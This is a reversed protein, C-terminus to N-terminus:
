WRSEFYQAISPLEDPLSNNHNNIYDRLNQLSESHNIAHILNGSQFSLQIITEFNLYRPHYLCPLNSNKIFNNGIFLDGTYLIPHEINRYDLKCREGNGWNELIIPERGFLLPKFETRENIEVNTLFLKNDLVSYQCKYGAWCATESWFTSFGYNEPLFFDRFSDRDSEKLISYIENNFYLIPKVQLTM